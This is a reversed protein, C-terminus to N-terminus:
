TSYAEFWLKWGESYVYYQIVGSQKYPEELTGTFRCVYTRRGDILDYSFDTENWDTGFGSSLRSSHSVFSKWVTNDYADSTTTGTMNCRISTGNPVLYGISQYHTRSILSKPTPIDPSISNDMRGSDSLEKMYQEYAQQNETRAQQGKILAAELDVLTNDIEELSLTSSKRATPAEKITVNYKEELQSLETALKDASSNTDAAFTPFTTMTLICATSLVMSIVKKLSKRM